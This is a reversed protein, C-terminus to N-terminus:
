NSKYWPYDSKFEWNDQLLKGGCYRAYETSLKIRGATCHVPEGVGKLIGKDLDIVFQFVDIGIINPKKAGNIDISLLQYKAIQSSISYPRIYAYTGDGCIFGPVNGAQGYYSYKTLDSVSAYGNSKYGCASMTKCIQIVKLYPKWYTEFYKLNENYSSSEETLIWNEPEGNFYKSTLLAQEFTSYAKKLKVSTQKQEYKAILSPLTMAAVIGIVGLTILVEAMTFGKHM